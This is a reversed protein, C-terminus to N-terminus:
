KITSCSSVCVVCVELGPAFRSIEYHVLIRSRSPPPLRFSPSSHHLWALVCELSAPQFKCPPLPHLSATVHTELFSSPNIGILAHTKIVDVFDVRRRMKRGEQGYSHSTKRWPASAIAENATPRDLSFIFGSFLFHVCNLGRNLFRIQVEAARASERTTTHTRDLGSRGAIQGCQSGQGTSGRRTALLWDTM